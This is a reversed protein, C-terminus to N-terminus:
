GKEITAAPAVLLIKIVKQHWSVPVHLSSENGEFDIHKLASKEVTWEVNRQDSIHFHHVPPGAAHWNLLDCLLGSSALNHLTSQHHKCKTTTGQSQMLNKIHEKHDHMIEDECLKTM